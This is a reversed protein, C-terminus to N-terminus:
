YRDGVREFVHPHAIQIPERRWSGGRTGVRGFTRGHTRAARGALPRHEVKGGGKRWRGAAAAGGGRVTRGTGRVESAHPPREEVHESWGWAMGPLVRTFLVREEAGDWLCTGVRTVADVLM